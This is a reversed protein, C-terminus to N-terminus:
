RGWLHRKVHPPDPILGM